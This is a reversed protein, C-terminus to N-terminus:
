NDLWAKIPEFKSFENYYDSEFTVEKQTVPHIFTLTSAHLLQRDLRGYPPFVPEKTENLFGLFDEDAQGYLKDGLIPFGIHEAHCRIQHTRGSFTQVKALTLGNQVKVSKFLSKSAKGAEDVM